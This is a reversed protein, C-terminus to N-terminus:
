GGCRTARRSGLRWYTLAVDLAASIARLIHGAAFNLYRNPRRPPPHLTHGHRRQAALRPVDESKETVLTSM